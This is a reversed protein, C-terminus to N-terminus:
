SIMDLSSFSVVKSSDSHDTFESKPFDHWLILDRIIHRQHIVVDMFARKCDFASLTPLM